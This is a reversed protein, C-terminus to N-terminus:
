LPKFDTRTIQSAYSMFRSRPEIGEYIAMVSTNLAVSFRVAMAASIPLDGSEIRQYEDVTVLMIDSMADITIKAEQRLIKINQSIQKDIKNKM